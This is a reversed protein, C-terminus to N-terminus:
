KKPSLLKQMQEKLVKIEESQSKLQKNQEISYLTLEEIKQLLKIQFEAINLGEKEMVKASAIEPLHKKEKIHKEIEELKPLDYSEEFVFDATPTVTVKIEKAEIKADVKMNDSFSSKGAVDLKYQPNHIGIGVNGNSRINFFGEYKTPSTFGSVTMISPNNPQYKGYRLFMLDNGNSINDHDNGIYFVDNDENSLIQTRGHVRLTINPDLAGGIAMKGASNIRIRETNSTKLVLDQNDTTGIFNNSPNTGANGTTNWSQAFISSAAISCVLLLTRKM